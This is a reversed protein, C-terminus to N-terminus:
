RHVIEFAQSTYFGSQIASTGHTSVHTQGVMENFNRYGLEHNILSRLAAEGLGLEAALAALSLGERRYLHQVQTQYGEITATAALIHLQANGLDAGIAM